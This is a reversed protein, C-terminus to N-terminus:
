QKSPPGGGSRVFAIVDALDQPKLDKELGEPMLSKKTSVLEDLDTRPIAHKKGDPAILTISNGTESALIGTVAQGNKLMAIYNLYRAEVARNPDLIAILLSEPTKDGLSALDPGVAEGIGALQHCTACTRRFVELGRRGDGAMKLVNQHTAVVKERDPDLALALLKQARKRIAQNRHQMLRQRRAADIEFPFVRNQELGDLLVKVGRENRVLADLVTARFAPGYAKWGRLLLELVLADASNGLATAVASQLEPPTQPVLLTALRALDEQGGFGHGLLRVAQLRDETGAKDDYAIRRAFDLMDKFRDAATGLRKKKEQDLSDLLGSLASLQWSAYRGAQAMTIKDLLTNLAQEDGMAPVLRSLSELLLVPSSHSVDAYVAALVANLNNKRVSSLIAATLYPDDKDGLALEALTAGVRPDDWEGLSYALQLRVQPDPDKLLRLCAAGLEPSRNFMTEALRIAHRRVGPHADCLASILLEPKLANLGDLTCLSHLRCLPNPDSTVQKKLLPVAAVDHKRVLMQQVMDRQWGNPSDFAAVLGATDLRDLRVMPRPKKGAPFVRYIRGKDAGERLDIRKQVDKPIWEPHEIVHRYMDAIWLAGDPGTKITTPRFWNDSSALFESRIEDDPRQSTFTFGRPKMIERHILNHVPESVFTNNEFEPGFLNDRYVIASCASTFHNAAWLDNFRPLTRSVPYVRSVGPTVSVQVRPNPAAVHPNRSLYHDTLVYHWMPDSNSCGFWNGWDDRSRGFQSQGSEAEVLGEDPKLRVDRGRINVVQGTKLSRVTGGSEGNACYVWNDLGWTPGNVRHQQNGEFFGQYLTRRQDAKGDGDTDEAYFIEPACTVIVGKGWVMIGTPFGIDDLFITAKDYKGDGDTDELVKIRGGPKGKGDMGLPYDRMEVVWLKGDQGWDFAVPSEVLPETAVLEVEFGPRVHIARLSDAPSKAEPEADQSKLWGAAFFVVVLLTTFRM